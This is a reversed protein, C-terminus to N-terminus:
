VGGVQYTWFWADAGAAQGAVAADAGGGAAGGTPQLTHPAAGAAGTVIRACWPKMRAMRHSM